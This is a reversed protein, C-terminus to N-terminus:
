LRNRPPNGPPRTDAPVNEEDWRSQAHEMWKRYSRMSRVCSDIASHRRAPASSKKPIEAAEILARDTELRPPPKTTADLDSRRTTTM